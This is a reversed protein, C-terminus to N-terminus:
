WAVAILVHIHVSTHAVAFQLTYDRATDFLQIFQTMLRVRVKVESDATSFTASLAWRSSLERGAVVGWSQGACYCVAVAAAEAARLQLRTDHWKLGDWRCVECVGGVLSVFVAAEWVVWTVVKRRSSHRFRDDHFKMGSGIEIVYKMIGRWRYHLGGFQVRKSAENHKCVLKM